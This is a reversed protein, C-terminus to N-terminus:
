NGPSSFTKQIYPYKELESHSFEVFNNSEDPLEEARIYLGPGPSYITLFFYTV